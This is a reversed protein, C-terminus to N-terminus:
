LVMDVYQEIRFIENLLERNEKTDDSLKLRMVAIPTKIQHVWNTYYDLADERESLNETLVRSLETGLRTVMAQYDEEAGSEPSSLNNWDSLIAALEHKREVSKKKERIIEVIFVVLLIFAGCVAAYIWPELSSGYLLCVALSVLSGLLWVLVAPINRKIVDFVVRKM